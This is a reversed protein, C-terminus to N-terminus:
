NIAYFFDKDFYKNLFFTQLSHVCKNSRLWNDAKQGFHPIIHAYSHLQDLPFVKGLPSDSACTARNLVHLGMAREVSGNGQAVIDLCQTYMLFHDFLSGSGGDRKFVTSCMFLCINVIVHGTSILYLPAFFQGLTQMNQVLSLVRHYSGLRM